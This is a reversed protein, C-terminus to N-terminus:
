VFRRGVCSRQVHGFVQMPQRIRDRKFNRASMVTIVRVHAARANHARSAHAPSSPCTSFLWLSVWLSEDFEDPSEDPLDRELWELPAPMTLLM